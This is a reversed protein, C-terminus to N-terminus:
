SIAPRWGSRFKPKPHIRVIERTDTMSSPRPGPRVPVFAVPRWYAALPSNNVPHCSSAAKGYSSPPVAKLFMAMGFIDQAEPMNPDFLCWYDGAKLPEDKLAKWELQLEPPPTEAVTSKITTLGVAGLLAIAFKGLAGRRSTNRM